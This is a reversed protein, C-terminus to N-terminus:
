NWGPNQKLAENLLLEESPIPELYYFDEAATSPPTGPTHQVYGESANNQIPISIGPYDSQKVWRGLKVATAYEMKKWRRLDERRFGEGFLEVARERRIEWLVPHVSQDRNTDWSDDILNVNMPDVEGRVRLKNITEDAVAQDFEGLEFKAEAYNVLVEGIRYVPADTHDNQNTRNHVDSYYKWFRYGSVTLSASHGDFNPVESVLRGAWNQFPLAKQLSGGSIREVEEFWQAEEPIGTHTWEDISGDAGNVRYPPPTMMVLRTDRDIFEQYYDKDGKYLASTSVPKGDKCLFMDVASRTMDLTGAWSRANNAVRHVMVDLLYEKYLIIGAKGNLDLSNFVQDYVPILDQYDAILQEGADASARLFKEHNGLNHYKRWTGEFLGFRSIFARIVDKNVTNKGDGEAKVNAEAFLLNSLISDAVADRSARAGYLVETDTDDIAHEVWPVGGYFKLLEFYQTARFFLGVGRWHAQDDESMDSFELNDLMLNIRRIRSYPTSWRGSSTPITKLGWLFNNQADIGRELIDSQIDNEYLSSWADGDYGKFYDYFSWAYVKVNDYSQFASAESLEDKPARDLFTDSCGAGFVTLILLGIIAHINKM